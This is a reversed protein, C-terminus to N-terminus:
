GNAMLKEPGCNKGDNAMCWSGFEIFKDFSCKSLNNFVVMGDGILNQIQNFKMEFLTDLIKMLRSSTDDDFCM